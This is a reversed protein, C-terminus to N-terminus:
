TQKTTTHGKVSASLSSLRDADAGSIPQLIVMRIMPDDAMLLSTSQLTLTGISPHRFRKLRREPGAVDSRSWYRAFEPSRRALEDPLDTWTADDLHLTMAARYM